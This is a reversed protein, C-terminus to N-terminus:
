LSVASFPSLPEESEKGRQVFDRLGLLCAEKNLISRSDNFLIYLYRTSGRALGQGATKVGLTSNECGKESSFHSNDAGSYLSLVVLFVCSSGTSPLSM